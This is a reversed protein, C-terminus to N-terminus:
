PYHKCNKAEAGTQLFNTNCQILDYKIEFFGTM